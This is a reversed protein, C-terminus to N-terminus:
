MPRLNRVPPTLSWSVRPEAMPQHAAAHPIFDPRTTQERRNGQKLVKYEKKLMKRKNM